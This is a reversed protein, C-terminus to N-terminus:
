YIMRLPIAITENGLEETRIISGIIEQTPNMQALLFHSGSVTM